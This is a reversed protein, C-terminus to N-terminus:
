RPAADLRNVWVVLNGPLPQRGLIEHRLARAVRWPEGDARRCAITTLAVMDEGHIEDARALLALLSGDSEEGPRFLVEAVNGFAPTEQGKLATATLTDAAVKQLEEDDERALAAYLVCLFRGADEPSEVLAEGAELAADRIASTAFRALQTLEDNGPVERASESLAWAARFVAVDHAALLASREPSEWAAALECLAEANLQGGAADALLKWSNQRLSARVRIEELNSLAEDRRNRHAAARTVTREHLAALSGGPRSGPDALEVFLESARAHVDRSAFLLM